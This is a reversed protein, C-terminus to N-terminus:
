QATPSWLRGQNRPKNQDINRRRKNEESTVQELHAPWCCWANCCLHDIELWPDIDGHWQRFMYRHLLMNTRKTLSDYVFTYGENNRYFGQGEWCGADNALRLRCLMKLPIRPAGNLHETVATEIDRLSQIPEVLLEDRRGQYPESSLVTYGAIQVQLEWGEPLQEPLSM